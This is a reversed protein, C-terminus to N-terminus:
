LVLSITASFDVVLVRAAEKEIEVVIKNNIGGSFSVFDAEGVMGDIGVAICLDDHYVTVMPNSDEGLSDNLGALLEEEVVAVTGGFLELEDADLTFHFDQLRLNKKRLTKNM